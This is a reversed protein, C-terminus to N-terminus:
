RHGENSWLASLHPLPQHQFHFQEQRHERRRETTMGWTFCQPSHGKKHRFLASFLSMCLAPMLFCPLCGASCHMSFHHGEKKHEGICCQICDHVVALVLGRHRITWTVSSPVGSGRAPVFQLSRTPGRPFNIHRRWVAWVRRFMTFSPVTDETPRAAIGNAM